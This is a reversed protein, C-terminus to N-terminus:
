NYFLLLIIENKKKIVNLVVKEVWSECLKVVYLNVM